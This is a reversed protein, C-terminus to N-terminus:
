RVGMRLPRGSRFYNYASTHGEAPVIGIRTRYRVFKEMAGREMAAIMADENWPTRLTLAVQM